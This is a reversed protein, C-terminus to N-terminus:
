FPWWASGAGPLTISGDVGDKIGAMGCNLTRSIIAGSERDVTLNSYDSFQAWKLLWFETSNIYCRLQHKSDIAPYGNTGGPKNDEQNMSMTWDIPGKTRGTWLAETAADFTSSNVYTPVESVITLSATTLNPIDHWSAGDASHQIKTGAIPLSAPVTLDQTLVANAKTLVLHGGFSVEMSLLEGGAWNWNVTLSLVRASGSLQEGANGETLDDASTMGKFAFQDGPLISPIAGYLGFGGTWDRTGKERSSGGRTNSAVYKPLTGVESVNWNRVTSQGDIIGLRGSFVGM